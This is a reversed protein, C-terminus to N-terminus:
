ATRQFTVITIDDSQEGGARHIDVQAMINRIFDASTKENDAQLRKRLHEMGFESQGPAMAENVGDTIMLVRDGVSLQMEELQLRSDFIAPGGAGLVVGKASHVTVIKSRPHWVLTPLHGANAITLTHSKWDLLAYAMSVFMGRKVQPHLRANVFAMIAEPTVAEPPRAHLLTRVMTILLGATLGKGSADAIVVGLRGDGHDIFDYHDGSVPRAGIFQVGFDYGQIQPMAKPLLQKQFEAAGVM